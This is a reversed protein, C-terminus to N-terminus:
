TPAVSKLTVGLKELLWMGNAPNINGAVGTNQFTTSSMNNCQAIKQADHKNKETSILDFFDSYNKIPEVEDTSLNTFIGLGIEATTEEMTTRDKGSKCSTWVPYGVISAMLHILTNLKDAREGTFGFIKNLPEAQMQRIWDLIHRAKKAKDSSPDLKNIDLEFKILATKETTDQELPNTLKRLGENTTKGDEALMNWHTLRGTPLNFHFINEKGELANNINEKHEEYKKDEENVIGFPGGNMYSICIIPKKETNNKQIEEIATQAAEPSHMYGSHYSNITATNEVENNTIEIKKHRLNVPRNEYDISNKQLHNVKKLIKDRREKSVDKFISMIKERWSKKNLIKSMLAPPTNDLKTQTITMTRKNSLQIVKKNDKNKKMNDLMASIKAAKLTDKGNEYLESKDNSLMNSYTTHKLVRLVAQDLKLKTTVSNPTIELSIKVDYDSTTAERFDRSNDEKEKKLKDELTKILNQIKKLDNHITHHKSLIRTKDSQIQDNMNKEILKLFNIYTELELIRAQRAYYGSRPSTTENLSCTEYHNGAFILGKETVENFIDKNNDIFKHNSLSEYLKIVANKPLTNKLNSFTECLNKLKVIFEDYTINENPRQARMLAVVANVLSRPIRVNLLRQSALDNLNTLIYCELLEVNSLNNGSNNYPKNALEEINHLKDNEKTEDCGYDDHKTEFAINNNAIPERAEEKKKFAESINHDIDAETISGTEYNAIKSLIEQKQRLLDQNSHNNNVRRNAVNAM